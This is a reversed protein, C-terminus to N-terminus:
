SPPDNLQQAAAGPDVIRVVGARGQPVAVV